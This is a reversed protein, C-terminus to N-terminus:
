TVPDGLWPRGRGAPCSWCPVVQTLDAVDEVSAISQVSVAVLVRSAALVAEAEEDRTGSAEAVSASEDDGSYRGL